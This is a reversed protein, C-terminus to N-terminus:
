WLCFSWCFSCNTCSDAKTIFLYLLTCMVTSFNSFTAKDTVFVSSKSIARWIPAQFKLVTARTENEHPSFVNNSRLIRFWHCWSPSSIERVEFVFGSHSTITEHKKFREPITHVGPLYRIHKKWLSVETKLDWRSLPSSVWSKNSSIYM